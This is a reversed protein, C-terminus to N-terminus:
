LFSDADRFRSKLFPAVLTQTPPFCHYVISELNMYEYGQQIIRFLKVREGNNLHCTVAGEKM